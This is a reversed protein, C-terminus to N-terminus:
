PQKRQIASSFAASGWVKEVLLALGIQKLSHRSDKNHGSKALRSSAPEEIYTFFNTTDYILGELSGGLLGALQPWIEKEINEFVPATIGAFLDDNLGPEKLRKKNLEKESSVDDTIYWFAKSNLIDANFELLEPLRTKSAWQGLQEKSTAGDLRNIITVLFFIWKFIGYRKGPIHRRLADLLGIQKAAQYGAAILGFERYAVETPKGTKLKEYIAEATGLFVSLTCVRSKGSGRKKGSM